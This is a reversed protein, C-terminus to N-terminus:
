ASFLWTVDCTVRCARKSEHKDSMNINFRRSESEVLLFNKILEYWFYRSKVFVCQSKNLKQKIETLKIGLNGQSKDRLMTVPKFVVNWEGMRFNAQAIFRVFSLDSENHLSKPRVSSFIKLCVIIFKNWYLQREVLMIFEWTAPM